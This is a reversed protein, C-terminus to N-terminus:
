KLTEQALAQLKQMTAWNRTTVAHGFKGLLAAGAKSELIAGACDLYVAHEGLLLREPPAVLDALAHLSRLGQDDQAVAALLRSHDGAGSALENAAIIRAFAEASKVVVPVTFGFREIIAAALKTALRQPSLRPALVVANGSNLLTTAQDCGLQLLLARFEAMPLRKAKGVNVGRLLIVLASM